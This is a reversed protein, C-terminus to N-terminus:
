RSSLQIKVGHTYVNTTAVAIFIEQGAMLRTYDEPELKLIDTREEKKAGILHNLCPTCIDINEWRKENFVGISDFVAISNEKQIRYCHDSAENVGCIDCIRKVM